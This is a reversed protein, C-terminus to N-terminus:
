LTYYINIPVTMSTKPKYLHDKHSLIVKHGQKKIDLNILKNTNLIYARTAAIRYEDNYGQPPFSIINNNVLMLNQENLIKDSGSLTKVKLSKNYSRSVCLISLFLLVLLGIFVMFGKKSTRM